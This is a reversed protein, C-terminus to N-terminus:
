RGLLSSQDLFKLCRDSDIRDKDCLDLLDQGECIYCQTNKLTQKIIERCGKLPTLGEERISCITKKLTERRKNLADLVSKTLEDFAADIEALSEEISFNKIGLNPPKFDGYFSTALSTPSSASTSTRRFRFQVM